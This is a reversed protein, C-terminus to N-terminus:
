NEWSVFVHWVDDGRQVTRFYAGVSDLDYIFGTGIVTFTIRKMEKEAKPIIAGDKYNYPSTEIWATIENNRLQVDVVNSFYGTLTMTGGAPLIYKNITRQDM